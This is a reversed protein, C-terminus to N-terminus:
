AEASLTCCRPKGITAPSASPTSTAPARPNTMPNRNGHHDFEMRVGTAPTPAPNTGVSAARSVNGNFGGCFGRNASLVLLTANKTEARQELLPHELPHAPHLQVEAHLGRVILRAGTVCPLLGGRARARALAVVNEAYSTTKLGALAGRENRTWPM